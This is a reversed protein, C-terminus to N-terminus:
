KSRLLEPLVPITLTETANLWDNYWNRLEIIESETLNEYWLKGRNIIEFCEKERQKRLRAIELEANREVAEETLATIVITEGEEAFKYDSYKGNFDKPTIIQKLENDAIMEAATLRNGSEDYEIRGYWNDGDIRGVYIVKNDKVYGYKM